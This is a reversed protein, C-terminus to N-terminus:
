VAAGNEELLRVMAAHGRTLALDLPHQGNDAAPNAQAGLSLLLLALDGDGNQAAAHLATWGGAQAANVNAGHAALLRAVDLSRGAAAAHLPTNRMANTSRADVAAGAALLAEAAEFSGFFAALHLPTWGDANYSNALSPGEGLLEGIRAARGAIAASFVDLEIGRDLLLQAIADQRAFRAATFADVGREDRSGISTPDADLRARVADLNGTRISEFLDNM